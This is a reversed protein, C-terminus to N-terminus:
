RRGWGGVVHACALGLGIICTTTVVAVAEVSWATGEVPAVDPVIVPQVTTTVTVTPAPTASASEQAEPTPTGSPTPEPEVPPSSSVSEVPGPSASAEAVVPQVSGGAGSGSGAPALEIPVLLRLSSDQSSVQPWWEGKAVPSSFLVSLVPVLTPAIGCGAGLCIGGASM